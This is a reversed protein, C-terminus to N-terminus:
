PNLSALVAYPFCKEDTKNQVNIVAKSVALARPLPFCAERM